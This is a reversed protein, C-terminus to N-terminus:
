ATGSRRVYIPVVAEPPQGEGRLIARWGIAAVTAAQPDDYEEPLLAWGSGERAGVGADAGADARAGAGAGGVDERWPRGCLRLAAPGGAPNAPAPLGVALSLLRARAEAPRDAVAEGVQLPEGQNGAVYLAAFCDRSRTAIAAGIPGRELGAREAMAALPSVGVMPLKWALALGKAAAIGIRLGTFSGPGTAAAVGGLRAGGSAPQWGLESFVAAIGQHLLESHGRPAWVSWVALPPYGSTGVAVSCHGASTDIALVPGPVSL